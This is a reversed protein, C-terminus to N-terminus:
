FQSMAEVDSEFERNFKRGGLVYVVTSGKAIQWCNRKLSSRAMNTINKRGGRKGDNWNVTRLRDYKGCGETTAGTEKLKSNLQRIGKKM